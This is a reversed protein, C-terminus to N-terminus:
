NVPTITVSGAPLAIQILVVSLFLSIIMEVMFVGIALPWTVNLATRALWVRYFLFWLTVPVAIASFLQDNGGAIALSYLPVTIYYIVAKSWNYAIIYTAYNQAFGLQKSIPIMMLPFVFWDALYAIIQTILMATSPAIAADGLASDQIEVGIFQVPAAIILAFFSWYFAKATRDFDYLATDRLLILGITARISQLIHAIGPM